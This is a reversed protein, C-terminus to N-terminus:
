NDKERDRQDKEDFSEEIAAGPAVMPWVKEDQPIVVEIVVPEGAALAEKIAEDVEEKKTVRIARAGMAESVRCFDMKDELITSSYRKGYFLTQWQRVMGLAHNNFVVQIIPVHYRAATAIENMNMRFCGDGAINIVTKEPMGIKAGICAGLGYGMTGMGGSTLLQRPRRYKYYQAAWMQHQGVDTTIIAENETLESIREIVYPGTLVEQNYNMPLAEKRAMVKDIWEKHYQQELKKNLIELISKLDGVISYDIQINKNIEVPDIDIQVIKARSAFKEANGIVRDSFRSGLVLLLDCETVSRNATKTGHMGLMGTYYPDNGDFAGKGMLSDTVPADM